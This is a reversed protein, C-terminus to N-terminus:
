FLRQVILIQSWLTGLNVMYRILRHALSSRATVGPKSILFMALIVMCIGLITGGDAALFINPGVLTGSSDVCQQGATEDITQNLAQASVASTSSFVGILASISYAKFAFSMTSM